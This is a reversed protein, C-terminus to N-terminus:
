NDVNANAEQLVKTSVEDDFLALSAHPHSCLRDPFPQFSEMLQFSKSFTGDEQRPGFNSLITAADSKQKGQNCRRVTDVPMVGCVDEPVDAPRDIEPLEQVNVSLDPVHGVPV